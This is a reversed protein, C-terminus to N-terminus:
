RSIQINGDKFRWMIPEYSNKDARGFLEEIYYGRHKTFCNWDSSYPHMISTPCGDRLYGTNKIFGMKLPIDHLYNNKLNTHYRNLICHGIEHLFIEMKSEESARSWYEKDIGIERVNGRCIGISSDNLDEFGITINSFDEETIVNKSMFIAEEIYPKFAPDTVKHKKAIDACGVLLLLYM